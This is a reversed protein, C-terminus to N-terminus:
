HKRFAINYKKDVMCLNCSKCSGPCLKYGEPIEENKDLITTMGNNGKNHGSGKVLFSVNKFNLDKRSTYGYVVIGFNRLKKAIVDLKKIDHQDWFDGAENFRIYKIPISSKKDAIKKIIDNSITTASNNRWYNFQRQRYPEVQKYLQEAKLAYCKAGNKVANCMGLEKSPCNTASGMNLILTNKGLKTNGISIELINSDNTVLAMKKLLKNIKQLKNM